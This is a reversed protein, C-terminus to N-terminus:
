KVRTFNGYHDNTYYISGDSGKVFREGDRNNGIINEEM